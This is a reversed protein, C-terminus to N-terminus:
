VLRDQPVSRYLAGSAILAAIDDVYPGSIVTPVARGSGSANRWYDAKQRDNGIRDAWESFSLKYYWYNGMATIAAIVDALRQPKLYPNRSTIM